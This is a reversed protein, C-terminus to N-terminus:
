SKVAAEGLGQRVASVDAQGLGAEVLAHWRHDIAAAVWGSPGAASPASCLRSCRGRVRRAQRSSSCSAPKRQSAPGPYRLTWSCCTPASTRLALRWSRRPGCASLVWRRGSRARGSRRSCGRVASTVAAADPLMTIVVDAHAVARDPGVYATAGAETLRGTAEPRRDWVDVRLGARVLNRAMAGGMIGTGLVAVRPRPGAAGEPGPGSAGSLGITIMADRWAGIGSRQSQRIARRDGPLLRGPRRPFPQVHVPRRHRGGRRSGRRGRPAPRDVPEALLHVPSRPRCRGRHADMSRPLDGRGAQRYGRFAKVFGVADPDIRLGDPNVTGGPLLLADYDEVSMDTVLHDVPFTGASILDSQRAQIEGSYISLLDSSAGAGYLAGRPQELEIREVGDTALIAVKMGKLDDAM